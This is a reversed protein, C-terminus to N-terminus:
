TQCISRAATSQRVDAQYRAAYWVSGYRQVTGGLTGRYSQNEICDRFHSQSLRAFLTPQLNPIKAIRLEPRSANELLHLDM